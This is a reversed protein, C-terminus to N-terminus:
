APGVTRRSRMRAALADKWGLKMAAFSWALAQWAGILVTATIWGLGYFAAAILTLLTRGPRVERAEESIRDLDVLDFRSAM